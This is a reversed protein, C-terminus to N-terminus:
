NGYIAYPSLVIETVLSKNSIMFSLIGYIIEMIEVSIDEIVNSSIYGFLLSSYSIGSGCFSGTIPTISVNKSSLTYKLLHTSLM